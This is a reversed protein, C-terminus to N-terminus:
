ELKVPVRRANAALYRRRAGYDMASDSWAGAPPRLSGQYASTVPPQEM